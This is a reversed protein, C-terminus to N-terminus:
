ELAIRLLGELVLNDVVELPANLRGAILSAGGGSLVVLPTGQGTEEMFRVMREVSGALANIAGSMIADATRDPFYYFAGDEVGLQATHRALADRMLEHGPVIIGGLFVGEASLADATLTTGVNVVACSRRFLHWAGILAAWRDAGLQAPEAYGSRVGCQEARGAVWHPTAGFPALAASVIDRVTAGAVNSVVVRQPAPLTALGGGLAAADRTALWGQRVWGQTDALGWKIRTNGADIALVNV